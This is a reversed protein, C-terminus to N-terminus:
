VQGYFAESVCHTELYRSIVEMNCWLGFRYLLNQNPQYEPAWVLFASDIGETSNYDRSDVLGLSPEAANSGYNETKDENGVLM